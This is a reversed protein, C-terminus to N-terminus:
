VKPKYWTVINGNSFSKTDTRDLNQPEPIGEFMTRGAGLVVPVTVIQYQDVLRAAALQAIISGSGMILLPPGAASKLQRVFEAIDDKILQTNQWTAENLTRSFVVKSANNMVTAVKPMTQMAAPTPWFSKMMDYTVRGFLMMSEGKANSNTFDQWEPDNKHAWSMDGNQGTFYGDLSVSNFVNLTRM